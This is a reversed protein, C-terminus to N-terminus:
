AQKVGWKGLRRYIAIDYTADTLVTRKEEGDANM